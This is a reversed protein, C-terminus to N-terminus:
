SALASQYGCVASPVTAVPLSQIVRNSAVPWDNQPGDLWEDNEIAYGTLEVTIPGNEFTRGGHFFYARPIVYREYPFTADLAGASDVRKVWLEVSVGNPCSAAGIEPYAYGVAAGSTLVTGGALIELLEPDPYCLGLTLDLRKLKDCDKFNVCVAGCANKVEFEDGESLVPTTVLQTLADSIYRNNAGADPSGDAELRTVVIACAQLQRRCTNAM